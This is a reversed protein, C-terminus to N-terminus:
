SKLNQPTQSTTDQSDVEELVDEEMSDEASEDNEKHVYRESGKFEIITCARYTEIRHYFNDILKLRKGATQPNCRPDVKLKDFDECVSVFKNYFKGIEEFAKHIKSDSEIHVWTISITKLAMFLTQPTTLYVQHNYAYQYLGSDGLLALDLLNNYPM